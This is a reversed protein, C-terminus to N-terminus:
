HKPTSEINPSYEFIWDSYTFANEFTEYGTSFNGTKLPQDTSQSAVGSIGGDKGRILKWEAENGGVPDSYLSRLHSKHVFRPDKVLDQLSRPFTKSPNGSEYYIRIAHKYANGRFLLEAERDMRRAMSSYATAVEAFIGMLIVAVLVMVYTFGRQKSVQRGAISTLMTM